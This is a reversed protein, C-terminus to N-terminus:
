SSAAPRRAALEAVTKVLKEADLPKLLFASAGLMRADKELDEDGFATVMIVGGPVQAAFESVLAIGVVPSNVFRNDLIVVDFRQRGALELGARADNACSVECGAPTLIRSALEIDESNDDVVLVKTKRSM